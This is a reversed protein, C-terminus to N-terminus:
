RWLAAAEVAAGLAPSPRLQELEMSLLEENLLFRSVTIVDDVVPLVSENYLLYTNRLLCCLFEGTTASLGSERHPKKLRARRLISGSGIFNLPKM